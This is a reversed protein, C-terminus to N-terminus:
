PWWAPGIQHRPGVTLETWLKAGKVVSVYDDATGRPPPRFVGVLSREAGAYVRLESNPAQSPLRKGKWALSMNVMYTSWRHVTVDVKVGALSTHWYHTLRPWTRPSGFHAGNSFRYTNRRADWRVRLRKLDRVTDQWRDEFEPGAPVKQGYRDPEVPYVPSLLRLFQNAAMCRMARRQDASAEQWAPTSQLEDVVEWPRAPPSLPRARLRGLQRYHYLHLMGFSVSGALGGGHTTMLPVDRVLVLSYPWPFFEAPLEAPLEFLLSMLGHLSSRQVFGWDPHDFDEPTIPAYSVRCYENIVALAREKGLPQLANVIRILALPDFQGGEPLLATPLRDLLRLLRRLEREPVLRPDPPQGKGGFVLGARGRANISVAGLTALTGPGDTGYRLLREGPELYPDDSHRPAGPPVVEDPRGLLALVESEPMGEARRDIVVSEDALGDQWQLSAVVRAMAAAFAQRNQPRKALAPSAPGLLCLLLVLTLCLPPRYSQLCARTSL